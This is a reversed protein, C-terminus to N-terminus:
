TRSHQQHQRSDQHRCIHGSRPNRQYYGAPTASETAAASLTTLGFVSVIIAFFLYRM